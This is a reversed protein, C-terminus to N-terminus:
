EIVREQCTEVGRKSKIEDKLQNHKKENHFLKYLNIKKVTDNKTIIKEEFQRQEPWKSKINNRSPILPEREQSFWFYDVRPSAREKLREYENIYENSGSITEIM